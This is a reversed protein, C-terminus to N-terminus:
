LKEPLETQTLMEAIATPSNNNYSNNTNAVINDNNSAILRQTRIQTPTPAFASIETAMYAVAVVFPIFRVM